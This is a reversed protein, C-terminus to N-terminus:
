KFVVQLTEDHYQPLFFLNIKSNAIIISYIPIKNDSFPKLLLYALSPVDRADRMVQQIGSLDFSVGFVKQMELLTPKFKKQLEESLSHPLIVGIATGLDIIQVLIPQKNRQDLLWKGMKSTFEGVNVELYVLDDLVSVTAYSLPDISEM